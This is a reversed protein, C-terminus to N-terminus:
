VRRAGPEDCDPLLVAFSDGNLRAVTDVERMLERLRGALEFLIRNAGTQGVTEGVFQFGQLVILLLSASTAQRRADAISVHVRDRLVAANPLGTLPDRLVSQELEQQARKRDTVDRLLVVVKSSDPDGVAKRAVEVTILQGDRR